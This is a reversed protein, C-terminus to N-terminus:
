DKEFRITEKVINKVIDDMEITSVKLQKLWFKIESFNDEEDEILNIIGLIRSLPARVVHSQTWAINKLKSNSNELEQTYKQLEQNLEGLQITMIKQSTIDTMAGVMRIAKGESDRVIIGQDIVYLISDDINCIRYELAWRFCLPDALALDLSSKIGPLDEPHFRDQWFNIEDLFQAADKGFFNEVAKSRYFTHNIVDWDWIVDNTAQTVKEFRENALLIKQETNKRQTIDRIFACFFEEKGQKIPIITLEIPFYDGKKNIASLELIKNLAKGEGTKLYHDMGREHMKRFNEPIIHDSLKKGMVEEETWGFIEHAQPNWFLVMGKVDMWVIADLASNMILRNAEESHILNEETRKRETIDRTIGLLSIIKGDENKMPAAHTELWKRTGKLGEIEFILTGSKGLFVNKSLATFAKRHEPLVIDLMSQGLVQEQNDAEIMKLGEENILLLNGTPGLLKICDPETELITRFKNESEVLAIRSKKQVDIDQFSGYIKTLEGNISEAKGICRIWRQNGKGTKLLFLEDFEIGDKILADMANKALTKSKGVHLELGASYSPVFSEKLELIEKIIPSWYMENTDNNLLSLEWSGMRAIKNAQNLLEENNVQETIDLIMVNLIVSGDALFLPIGKGFHTKVQGNPNLTKFRCTWKSKTDIAEKISLRVKHYSGAAIIQDWFLKCNQMVDVVSFGWIEEVAGYVHNLVERGDLHILYQFVVGPLNDSLSQLRIATEKRTTINQLSGFIRNCVGEYFDGTGVVRLWKEQKNTTVIPVEIDFNEGTNICHEIATTVLERFDQRYFNIAMALTPVFFESDTEHINHIEKSWFLNNNVLDLEWSGIQALNSVQSNLERLKKEESINVATAFILKEEV